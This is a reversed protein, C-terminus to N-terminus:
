FYELIPSFTYIINKPYKMLFFNLNRHETSNYISLITQFDSPYKKSFISNSTFIILEKSFIPVITKYIEEKIDIINKKNSNFIIEDIIEKNCNLLQKSLDIKINKEDNSQILSKIMKTFYKSLKIKMKILEINKDNEKDLKDKKNLKDQQQKEILDIKFNMKKNEEEIM